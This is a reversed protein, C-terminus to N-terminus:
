WWSVGLAQMMALFVGDAVVRPFIATAYLYDHVVAAPSYKGWPPALRWFFRPVSAFDTQFGEPVTIAKTEGASTVEVTHAELLRARRGDKLIEVRLPGGLKITAM